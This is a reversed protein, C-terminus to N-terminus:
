AGSGAPMLGALKDPNKPDGFDGLVDVPLKEGPQEEWAFGTPSKTLLGVIFNVATLLGMQVLPDGLFGFKAQWVLAATSVVFVWFRKSQYFPKGPQSAQIYILERFFKSLLEPVKKEGPLPGPRGTVKEGAEPAWPQDFPFGIITINLIKGCICINPNGSNGSNGNFNYRSLFIAGFPALPTSRFEIQKRSSKCM